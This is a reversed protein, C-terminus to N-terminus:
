NVGAYASDTAVGAEVKMPIVFRGRWESPLRSKPLRGSNATDQLLERERHVTLEQRNGGNCVSGDEDSGVKLVFVTVLSDKLDTQEGHEAENKDDEECLVNDHETHTIV